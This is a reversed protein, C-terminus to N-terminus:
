AARVQEDFSEYKELVQAGKSWASIRSHIM